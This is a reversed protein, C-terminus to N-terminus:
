HLSVLRYSHCVQLIFRVAAWSLAAHGPDYQVAVDVVQVFKKVYLSIKQFVDQLHIKEGKRNTYKWKKSHSLQQKDQLLSSLSQLLASQNQQLYEPQLQNQDEPGLEAFASAWLDIQAQAVMM